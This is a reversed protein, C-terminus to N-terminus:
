DWKIHCNGTLYYIMGYIDQRRIKLINDGLIKEIPLVIYNTILNEIFIREHSQNSCVEPYIKSEFECLVFDLLIILLEQKSESYESKLILKMFKEKTRMAFKYQDSRDGKKLKEELGLVEKDDNYRTNFEKMEELFGSCEGECNSLLDDYIQEIQNKMSGINQFNFNYVYKNKGIVDGANSNKTQSIKNSM